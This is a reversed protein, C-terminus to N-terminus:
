GPYVARSVGCAELLNWAADFDLGFPRPITSSRVPLLHQAQAAARPMADNACFLPHTEVFQVTGRRRKGVHGCAFVM